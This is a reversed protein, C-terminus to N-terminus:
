LGALFGQTVFLLKCNERKYKAVAVICSIDAGSPNIQLYTSDGVLPLQSATM